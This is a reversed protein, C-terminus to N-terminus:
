GRSGVLKTEPQPLRLSVDARAGGKPHERLLVCSTRAPGGAEQVAGAEAHWRSHGVGSRTACLSLAAASDREDLLPV